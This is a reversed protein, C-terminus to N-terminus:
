PSAPITISFIAGKGDRAPSKALVSWGLFDALLKVIYLGLRAQKTGDGAPRSWRTFLHAQDEASIAPGNNEIEVVSGEKTRRVNVRVRGEAPDAHEAANKILNFFIQRALSPVATVESIEGEGTVIEFTVGGRLAKVDEIIENLEARVNIKKVAIDGGDLRALVLLDGILDSLRRNEAYARQLAEKQEASLAGEGLLNELAWRVATLPTNLQHGVLSLFEAQFQERQKHNTIDPEIGIFFRIDGAEDLVPSIYLAQWYEAGDKRVNKVEGAFPQKKRKITDWMKEYFEGPMHGGWVEAPNKGIIEDRSFGTQRAVAANAYVIVANPDTIIIHHPVLDFARRLPEVERVYASLQKASIVWRMNAVM